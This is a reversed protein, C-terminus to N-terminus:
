DGKADIMQKQEDTIEGSAWAYNGQIEWDFGTIFDKLWDIYKDQAVSYKFDSGGFDSVEPQKM